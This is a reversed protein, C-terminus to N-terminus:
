KISTQLSNLAAVTKSIGGIFDCWERQTSSANPACAPMEQVLVNMALRDTPTPRPQRFLNSRKVSLDIYAALAMRKGRVISESDAKPKNTRNNM